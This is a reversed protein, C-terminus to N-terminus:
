TIHGTRFRNAAPVFQEPDAWVSRWQFARSIGWGSRRRSRRRCRKFRDSRERSRHATSRAARWTWAHYQCFGSWITFLVGVALVILLVMNHWIIGHVHSLLDNSWNLLEHM